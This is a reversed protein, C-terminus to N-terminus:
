LISMCLRITIINYWQLVLRKAIIHVTGVRHYNMEKNYEIRYCPFSVGGDIGYYQSIFSICQLIHNLEWGGLSLSVLLHNLSM